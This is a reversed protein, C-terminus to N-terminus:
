SFILETKGQQIAFYVIGITTLLMVIPLILFLMMRWSKIFDKDKDNNWNVTLLISLALILGLYSYVLIEKFGLDLFSLLVKSIYPLTLLFILSAVCALIIYIVTPANDKKKEKEWEIAFYIAATVNLVLFFLFFILIYM